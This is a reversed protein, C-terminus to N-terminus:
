MTALIEEVIGITTNPHLFAFRAVTEGEWGTPTVFGIQGALLRESWSRYDDHTWGRRRFLVASLTPERILELKENERILDASRRALSLAKEIAETYAGVGHVALSFWLPLGRARRTLHYAYDTPNWDEEEGTHLVDLYSADQTHVAKALRPNRYLLAACDFPAFLWKHPDVVFSDAHEIGDYLGRVSPAFLGAGGYAGDVHFWLDHERAVEAVGALDDIIGANTTGCTAVVAIVDGAEDGELAARLAEGTLRHDSTKVVLPDVGIINLTNTISSHAQDSVAVRPRGATRRAADRAVVLASLNAASGGSVFCGGATGPMGAKDAILRLVQNEAAIAGSAELWSIGQLSACSVVMDFLLAAKTPAAPIFSLFRPSDASIVSPALQDAYIDLVKAPDNGEANILGALAIDLKDKVGPHDLPVPDMALRDRMYSFVLDTLREDYDHM